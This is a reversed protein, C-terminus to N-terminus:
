ILVNSAGNLGDSQWGSFFARTVKVMKHKDRTQRITSTAVFLLGFWNRTFTTQLPAKKNEEIDKKGRRIKTTKKSALLL